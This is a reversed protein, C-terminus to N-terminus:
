VLHRVVYRFALALVVAVAIVVVVGTVFPLPTRQDQLPAPRSRPPVYPHKTIRFKGRKAEREKEELADLYWERDKIGM